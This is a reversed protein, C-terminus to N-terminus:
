IRPSNVEGDPPPTFYLFQFNKLTFFSAYIAPSNLESTLLFKYSVSKVEGDPPSTVEGRLQIAGQHIRLGAINPVPLFPPSCQCELRLRKRFHTCSASERELVFSSSPPPCSFHPDTQSLFTLCVSPRLFISTRESM